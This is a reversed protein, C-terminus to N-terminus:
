TNFKLFVTDNTAVEFRSFIVLFDEWISISRIVKVQQVNKWHPVGWIHLAHFTYTTTTIRPMFILKQTKLQFVYIRLYNGFDKFYQTKVKLIKTVIYPNIYKWLNTSEIPVLKTWGSVFIVRSPESNCICIGM